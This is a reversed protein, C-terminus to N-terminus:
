FRHFFSNLYIPSPRWMPCLIGPMDPLTTQAVVITFLANVVEKRNVGSEVLSKKGCWTNERYYEETLTRQQLKRQLHYSSVSSPVTLRCGEKTCSELSPPVTVLAMSLRERGASTVPCVARCMEDCETVPLVAGETVSQSM